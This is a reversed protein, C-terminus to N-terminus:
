LTDAGAVKTTTSMYTHRNLIRMLSTHISNPVTTSVCPSGGEGSYITRQCLQAM